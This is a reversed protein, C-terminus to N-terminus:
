RVRQSRAGRQGGRQDHIFLQGHLFQLCQKLIDLEELEPFLGALDDINRYTVTNENTGCRVTLTHNGIASRVMRGKQQEAQRVMAHMHQDDIGFFGLDRLGVIIEQVDDPRLSRISRACGSCDVYGNTYVVVQYFDQGAIRLGVCEGRLRIVPIGIPGRNCVLLSLAADAARWRPGKGKNEDEDFVKVLEKCKNRDLEKLRRAIEIDAVEQLQGKRLYWYRAKQHAIEALADQGAFDAMYLMRANTLFLGHARGAPYAAVADELLREIRRLSCFAAEYDNTLYENYLVDTQRV